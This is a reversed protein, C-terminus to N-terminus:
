ASGSVAHDAAPRTSTVWPSVSLQAVQELAAVTDRLEPPLTRSLKAGAVEAAPLLHPLYVGSM